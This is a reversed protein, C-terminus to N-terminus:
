VMPTVDQHWKRFFQENLLSESNQYVAPLDKDRKWFLGTKTNWEIEPEITTKHFNSWDWKGTGKEGFSPREFAM